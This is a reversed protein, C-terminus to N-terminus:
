RGRQTRERWDDLGSGVDYSVLVHWGMAGGLLIPGGFSQATGNIITLGSAMALAGWGLTGVIGGAVSFGFAILVASVVILGYWFPLPLISRLLHQPASEAKGFINVLGYLADVAVLLGLWHLRIKDVSMWIPMRKSM